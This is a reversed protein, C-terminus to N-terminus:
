EVARTRALPEVVPRRNADDLDDVAAKRATTSSEDTASHTPRPGVQVKEASSSCAGAFMILAIAGGVAASTGARPTTV